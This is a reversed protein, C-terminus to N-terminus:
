TGVLDPPNAEARQVRIRSQRHFQGHRAPGRQVPHARVCPLRQLECTVPDATATLYGADYYKKLIAEKDTDLLLERKLPSGKKSKMVRLLQRDTFVANGTFTIESILIPTSERIDAHLAVRHPEKLPTSRFAVTAEYYGEAQYLALIESRISSLKEDRLEKGEIGALANLITATSVASNGRVDIEDVITIPTVIYDLRVGGNDPFAEVRIDKFIGKLYLTAIGQRVVTGTLHDGPKVMILPLVQEPKPWPEGLDDKIEIRTITMGSYSAPSAHVPSILVIMLVWGALWHLSKM